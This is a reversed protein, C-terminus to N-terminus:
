PGTVDDRVAASGARGFVRKAQATEPPYQGAAPWAPDAPLQTPIQHDTRTQRQCGAPTHGRGYLIAPGVLACSNKVLPM